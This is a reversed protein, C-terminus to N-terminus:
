HAAEPADTTQPTEGRWGMRPMGIAPAAPPAVPEAEYDPEALEIAAPARGTGSRDGSLEAAEAPPSTEPGPQIPGTSAAPDKPGPDRGVPKPPLEAPRSPEQMAVPIRASSLSGDLPSAAPDITALQRPSVQAHPPPSYGAMDFTAAALGLGAVLAAGALRRGSPPSRGAFGSMAPGSRYQPRLPVFTVIQDILGAPVEPHSLGGLNHSVAADGEDDDDFQPPTNSMM